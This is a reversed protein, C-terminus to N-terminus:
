QELMPLGCIIDLITALESPLLVTVKSHLGLYYKRSCLLSPRSCGCLPTDRREPARLLVTPNAVSSGARGSTQVRPAAHWAAAIDCSGYAVLETNRHSFTPFGGPCIGSKSVYVRIPKRRRILPAVNGACKFRRFTAM